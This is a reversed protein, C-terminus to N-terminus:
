QAGVKVWAGTGTGTSIILINGNGVALYNAAPPAVTGSSTIVSLFGFSGYPFSATGTSATVGTLMANPASASTTLRAVGDSGRVNDTNLVVDDVQVDNFVTMRYQNFAVAAGAGILFVILASLLLHRKIFDNHARM